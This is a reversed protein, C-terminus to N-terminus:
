ATAAQADSGTATIPSRWTMFLNYLFCLLGAFMFLGAFVRTVWFPHSVDISDRWPFLAAWMYGQFVGALILDLAMVSLGGASLWFHYECLRYSYWERKMIRPFLYTMVGFLWLSFVGFMVLHAHGVVWDTFHILKQFTLTKRQRM